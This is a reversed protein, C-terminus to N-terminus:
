KDEMKEAEELIEGLLAGIKELGPRKKIEEVMEKALDKDINEILEIAETQLFERIHEGLPKTIKRAEMDQFGEITIVLTGGENVVGLSINREEKHM